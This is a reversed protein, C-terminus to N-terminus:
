GVQWLLWPEAAGMFLASPFWLSFSLEAVILVFGLVACLWFQM